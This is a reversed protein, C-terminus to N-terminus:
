LDKIKIFNYRTGIQFVLAHFNEEAEPYKFNKSQLPMFYYSGSFYFHFQRGPSYELGFGPNLGLGINKELFPNYPETDDPALYNLKELAFSFPGAIM